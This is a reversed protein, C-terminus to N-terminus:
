YTYHKATNADILLILPYLIFSGAIAAYPTNHAIIINDRHSYM